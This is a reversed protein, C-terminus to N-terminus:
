TKKFGFQGGGWGGWGVGALNSHALNSHALEQLHALEYIPGAGLGRARPGGPPPTPQPPSAPPNKLPTKPPGHVVLVIILTSEPVQLQSLIM